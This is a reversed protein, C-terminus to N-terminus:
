RVHNEEPNLPPVSPSPCSPMIGESYRQVAYKDILRDGVGLAREDLEMVDFQDISYSDASATSRLVSRRSSTFFALTLSSPPRKM